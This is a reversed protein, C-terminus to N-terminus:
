SAACTNPSDAEVIDRSPASFQILSEILVSEKSSRPRRKRELPARCQEAKARLSRPQKLVSCLTLAADAFPTHGKLLCYKRIGFDELLTSASVKGSHGRAALEDRKDFIKEAIDIDLQQYAEDTLKYFPVSIGAKHLSERSLISTAHGGVIHKIESHTLNKNLDRIKSYEISCKLFLSDRNNNRWITTQKHTNFNKKSSPKEYHHYNSTSNIAQITEPWSDFLGYVLAVSQLPNRFIQNGTLYESVSQIHALIKVREFVPRWPHGDFFERVRGQNLTAGRTLGIEESRQQIVKALTDRTFNPLYNPDLLKQTVRHLELEQEQRVSSLGTSGPLPAIGCGCHLGPRSNHDPHLSRTICKDCIASSLPRGHRSCFLLGPVLNTRNWFPAGCLAIDEKICEPCFSPITKAWGGNPGNMGLIAMIGHVPKKAGHTRVVGVDDPTLFRSQLPLFTNFPEM